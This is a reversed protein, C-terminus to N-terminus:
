AGGGDPAAYPEGEVEESLRGRAQLVKLSEEAALRLREWPETGIVEALSPMQGQFADAVANLVKDFRAVAEIEEPTFVPPLLWKRWGEPVHDNAWMCVMETVVNVFRVADQYQRQKDYSAALELDDIVRNRITQLVVQESPRNASM